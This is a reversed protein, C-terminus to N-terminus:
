LIVKKGCSICHYLVSGECFTHGEYVEHMVIGGCLKCDWMRTVKYKYHELNLRPM